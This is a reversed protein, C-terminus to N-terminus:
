HINNLFQELSISKDGIHKKLEQYENQASELYSGRRICTILRNKPTHTSPVFETATVEYGKSRLLCMRLADTFHAAVERRVQPTHFVPSLPHTQTDEKWFRALEAQCCPAVAIFDSKEQVAFSLALDTAVDCAHLAVVAHPRTEKNWKYDSISTAEFSLINAFGLKQAKNQCDKIIKSNSDVGVIEVPHKWKELFSWALLFTLYSKGCGVDLIRVIKHRSILSEIHSEILNYMHNIQIFKKVNDPSMSADSNLLGLSLLLDPATIPTIAYKKEGLLKEIRKKNWCNLALEKFSVPKKYIEMHKM